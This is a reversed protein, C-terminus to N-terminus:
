QQSRNGNSCTCRIWASKCRIFSSWTGSSVPYGIERLQHLLGNTENNINRLDAATVCRGSKPLRYFRSLYACTLTYRQGYRQVLANRFDMYHERDIDYGQIAAAAEGKPSSRLYVLKDVLQITDVNHAAM